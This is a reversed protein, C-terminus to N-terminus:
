AANKFVSQFSDSEQFTIGLDIKLIHSLNDVQRMMSSDIVHAQQARLILLADRLVAGVQLVQGEAVIFARTACASKGTGFTDKKFFCAGAPSGGGWWAFLARPRPGRHRHWM